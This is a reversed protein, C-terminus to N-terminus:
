KLAKELAELVMQAEDNSLTVGKGMKSHEPDWERIDIKPARGNWSVFNIEKTWGTKENKYLTDLHETIEFTIERSKKEM